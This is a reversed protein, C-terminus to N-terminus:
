CMHACVHFAVVITLRSVKSKTANHLLKKELDKPSFLEPAMYGPTGMRDCSAGGGRDLHVNCVSLGFDAIQVKGEVTLM